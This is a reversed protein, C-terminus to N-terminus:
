KSELKYNFENRGPKVTEKVESKVNYKKPIPEKFNQAQPSDEEVYTTIRVTHEGVLAGRVNDVYTLDYKGNADTLGASPRGKVPTFSVEVKELPKGDMTVVGTVTGLPATGSSGGCGVLLLLVLVRGFRRFNMQLSMM